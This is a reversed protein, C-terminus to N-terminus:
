LNKLRKLLNISKLMSQLMLLNARVTKLKITIKIIITIRKFTKIKLATTLQIIKIKHVIKTLAIQSITIAIRRIYLFLTVIKIISASRTSLSVNM